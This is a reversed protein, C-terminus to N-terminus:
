FLKPEALTFLLSVGLALAYGVWLLNFFSFLSLLLILLALFFLFTPLPYRTYCSLLIFPSFLLLSFFVPFFSAYFFLSLIFPIFLACLFPIFRKM